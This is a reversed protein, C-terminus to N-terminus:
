CFLTESNDKDLENEFIVFPTIEKLDM